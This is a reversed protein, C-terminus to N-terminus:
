NQQYFLYSNYEHIIHNVYLPFLMARFQQLHSSWRRIHVLHTCWMSLLLIEEKKRWYFVKLCRLFPLSTFPEFVFALFVFWKLWNGSGWVNFNHTNLITKHKKTEIKGVKFRVVNQSTLLYTHLAAYKCKYDFFFLHPM